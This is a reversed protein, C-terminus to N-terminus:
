CSCTFFNGRDDNKIEKGILVSLNDWFQDETYLGELLGGICLYEGDKIYELGADILTNVDDIGLIESYTKISDLALEQERTYPLNTHPNVEKIPLKNNSSKVIGFESAVKPHDWVHRLTSITRPYIFLWFIEGPEVRKTLFPDVIGIPDNRTGDAGVDEGPSLKVQAVVSLVPVHIADRGQISTLIHGVTDQAITM